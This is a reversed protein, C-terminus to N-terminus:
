VSSLVDATTTSIKSCNKSAFKWLLKITPLKLQFIAGSSWITGFKILCSIKIFLKYISDLDIVNKM